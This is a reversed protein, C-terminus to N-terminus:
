SCVFDYFLVIEISSRELVPGYLLPIHGNNLSNGNNWQGFVYNVELDILFLFIFTKSKNLEVKGNLPYPEM